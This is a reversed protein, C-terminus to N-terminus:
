KKEKWFDCTNEKPLVEWKLFHSPRDSFQRFCERKDVRSSIEQGCTDCTKDELLNKATVNTEM